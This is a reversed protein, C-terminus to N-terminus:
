ASLLRDAFAQPDFPRLDDPKEGVGVFRIPVGLEERVALVVGGKASGDTKTLVVGTVDVADTFARAQAIGNQGTQADLVLLTESVAAGAKEIVRKIKALEDMLPQKTHLRGATDVILVDVGRAASAKVADFAVAGPDAGREQAIVQAGAVRAWVELQEGAAARFTDAAAVSVVRGESALRKALKGITTTKGSGNVGVVLIVSLEGDLSLPEESGLIGVIEARVKRTVDGSGAHDARVRDVLDGAAKPGLDAKLLLDELEHWTAETVGGRFLGKLSGGLGGSRFAGGSAAREKPPAAHKLEAPHEPAAPYVHAYGESGRRRRAIRMTGAIVLVIALVGFIFIYWWM